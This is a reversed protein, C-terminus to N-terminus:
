SVAQAVCSRVVEVDSPVPVQTQGRYQWAEAGKGLVLVLGGEPSNAIAQRIAEPRDPVSRAPPHGTAQIHSDLERCIETVPVEGPDDETLYIDDASLGALVGLERRRNFAKEGGSGFVMTLHASPYRGKAWALLSEMSLRQHAYDVVVTKGPPLHFVEMRGPVRAGDLGERIAEWDVDLLRAMTVAALANDVNFQGALRIRLREVADDTRVTFEQSDGQDALDHAVVDADLWATGPQQRAFTVVRQCQAAAAMVRPLEATRANVVALRSQGFLKLKAELYDEFDPHEHPSIHDESINLFCGVEFYLNDVRRYRLAQSSVELCVQRMGSAVTNHLHQHLDLTEPTTHVPAAADAGDENRISSILGPGVQGNQRTWAALISHLLITTTSKGKTGTVGLLTLAQWARDHYLAGVEAIAQRMETVMIRPLPGAQPYDTESLYAVAGRDLAQLLYEPRFHVGKCIFLAGPAVRRSDYTVQSIAPDEGLSASAVLGGLVSVYDSLRYVNM